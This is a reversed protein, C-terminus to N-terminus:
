TRSINLPEKSYKDLANLSDDIEQWSEKRDEFESNYISLMNRASSGGSETVDMVSINYKGSNLDKFEPITIKMNLRSIENDESIEVKEIFEKDQNLIERISSYTINSLTNELDGSFDGIQYCIMDSFDFLGHLEGYTIPTGYEIGNIRSAYLYIDSLELGNGIPKVKLVDIEKEISGAQNIYGYNSLVTSGDKSIFVLSMGENSDVFLTSLSVKQNFRIINGNLDSISSKIKIGSFNVGGSYDIHKSIKNRKTDKVFYTLINSFSETLRYDSIPIHISFVVTKNINNKTLKYVVGGMYQEDVMPCLVAVFSFDELNHGDVVVDAGRFTAKYSDGYKKFAVKYKSMYSEPYQSNELLETGINQEMYPVTAPILWENTRKNKDISFSSFDPNVSILINSDNMEFDSSDHQSFTVDYTELIEDSTELKYFDVLENDLYYKTEIVNGTGSIIKYEGLYNTTFSSGTTYESGNYLIKSNAGCVTYKTFEKLVREGIFERVDFMNKIFFERDINSLISLDIISLELNPYSLVYSNIKDDNIIGKIEIIYGQRDIKGNSNDIDLNSKISLIEYIKNNHLLYDNDEEIIKVDSYFYSNKYTDEIYSDIIEINRSSISLNFSGGYKNIFYVGNSTPVCSVRTVEGAVQNFAKSLAKLTQERNGKWNFANWNNDEESFEIGAELLNPMYDAIFEFSKGNISITLVDSQVFDKIIAIEYYTYPNYIKKISVHKSDYPKLVIDSYSILSNGDNYLFNRETGNRLSSLLFENDTFDMSIENGVGIFEKLVFPKIKISNGIIEKDLVSININGLTFDNIFSSFEGNGSLEFDINIVNPLLIKNGQIYDIIQSNVDADEDYYLHFDNLIGKELNIGYIVIERRDTYITIPEFRDLSGIYGRLYKGIPTAESLDYFDTVDVSGDDLTNYSIFGMPPEGKILLSMSSDDSKNYVNRYASKEFLNSLDNVYGIDVNIPFSYMKSVSLSENSENIVDLYIKGSKKVSIKVNGYLEPLHSLLLTSKM